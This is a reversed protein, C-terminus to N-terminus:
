QNSERRATDRRSVDGWQNFIRRRFEKFEAIAAIRIQTIEMQAIEDLGRSLIRPLVRDMIYINKRGIGKRRYFKQIKEEDIHSMKHCDSCLCQLKYSAYDWPERNPEYEKHHVHLEQKSDSCIECKFGHEQMIELRKRQWRPDKLKESYTKMPLLFGGGRGVRPVGAHVPPHLSTFTTQKTQM